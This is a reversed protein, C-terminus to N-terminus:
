KVDINSTYGYVWELAHRIIIIVVWERRREYAVETETDLLVDIQTDLVIGGNTDITEVEENDEATGAVVDGMASPLGALDSDLVTEGLLLRDFPEM